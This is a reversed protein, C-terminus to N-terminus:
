VLHYLFVHVCRTNPDIDATVYSSWANCAGTSPPLDANFSQSYRVIGGEEEGEGGVATCFVVVMVWWRVVTSVAAFERRRAQIRHGRGPEFTSM